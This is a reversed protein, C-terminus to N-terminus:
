VTIMFNAHRWNMNHWGTRPFLLFERWFTIWFQQWIYQNPVVHVREKVEGFDSPLFIELLMIEALQSLGGSCFQIKHPAIQCNRFM